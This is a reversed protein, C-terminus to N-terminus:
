NAMRAVLRRLSHELDSLTGDNSLRYHASSIVTGLGLTKLEYADRDSLDVACIPRESRAALRSARIVASTEVALCVLGGSIEREYLSREEACYIADVLATRGSSIVKNVEPLARRALADMGEDSRIEDRVRKENAPTITLGRRLVESTVFSGVYIRVGAGSRELLEIVTSKGAGALGALAVLM